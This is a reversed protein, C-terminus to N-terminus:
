GSRRSQIRPSELSSRVIRERKEADNARQEAVRVRELLPTQQSELAANQARLTQVEERLQNLETEIASWADDHVAAVRDAEVNANREQMEDLTEENNM